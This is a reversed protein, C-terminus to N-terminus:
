PNRLKRSDLIKGRCCFIIEVLKNSRSRGEAHPKLFSGIDEPLTSGSGAVSGCREREFPGALPVACM